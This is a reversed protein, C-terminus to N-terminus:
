KCYTLNNLYVMEQQTTYVLIINKLNIALLYVFAYMNAFIAKGYTNEHINM